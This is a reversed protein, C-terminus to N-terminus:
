VSLELPTGNEAADQTVRWVEELTTAGELVKRYGDQRMSVFAGDAAQRVQSGSPRQLVVERVADTVPIMEFIGVRGRYGTHHCEQCGVGRRLKAGRFSPADVGLQELVQLSPEHTEACRDCVVRLLRQAVIAELTTALLFPEIGMDLLRTVAGAADNTHLTSFVLHGTLASRIAIDATESDRIEGVMIIDPDHRLIARLGGAFTLGRKPNVPMQDIGELHFEVPDEITIMKKGPTYIRNLAAYLTTTKGSGTPGTVLVMGHPRRIVGDFVRLLDASMGLEGLRRLTNSKDLIRLVVSEGFVTPVTSVRIDVNAEPAVFKIHGDQPVFREAINLNAMIKIRSVIAAQLHKPPSKMEHLVGDTRYKVKLEHEFPEIHIDSAKDQVAELVILNVLNILSPERALEHLHGISDEAITEELSDIEAALSDAMRAASTGYLRRLADALETPRAYWRVIDMGCVAGLDGVAQLDFPDAMALDLQGNHTKLPLVRYRQALDAPILRLADDAVETNSLSALPIDHQVSLAHTLDDPHILGLRVLHEGIRLGDQNTSREMQALRDPTLYGLRILIEGIRHGAM